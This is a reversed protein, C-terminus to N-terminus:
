DRIWIARSTNAGLDAILPTVVVRPVALAFLPVRQFLQDQMGHYNM